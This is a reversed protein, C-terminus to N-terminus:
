HRPIRSCASALADRALSRLCAKLYSASFGHHPIPRIEDAATRGADNFLDDSLKQGILLSETKKLRIPKAAVAGVTIRANSCTSGDEQVDLVVALNIAAFELGGRITFKSFATGRLGTNKPIRVAVLLDQRSLTCPHLPNGTYFEDIPIRKPSGNSLVEVSADLSFLVPATDAVFVAWCQKGNPIFYCRDGNRKFCPEVFQYSHQQNYYMCRTELCLNGGLTGMNRIQYSGVAYAAEALGFANQRIIESRAVDTLSMLSDLLLFGDSDVPEFVPLNSLGIVYGPSELGYKMRPLVDTGGAMIRAAAEHKGLLETAQEISKPQLLQFRPLLM